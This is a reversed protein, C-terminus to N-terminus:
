SRAKLFDKLVALKALEDVITDESAYKELLSCVLSNNVSMIVGASADARSIEEMAITYSITDMGGGDWKPSVMMGMFGLNAMKDIADRPWIKKEDREIAGPVLESNAFKKATEQILRQEESLQFNM